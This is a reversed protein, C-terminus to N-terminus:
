SADGEKQKPPPQSDRDSRDRYWLVEDYTEQKVRRLDVSSKELFDPGTLKARADRELEAHRVGKFFDHELAEAASCRRKPNFQLMRKLLDLALPHAAPYIQEFPKPKKTGLSKIYENAKGISALDEASPTGLVGFIASLQDVKEDNNMEGDGSLPFCTGGPFLPNRKEYTAVNGQQMSLLEGLICGLSWIDVASTYPQILILEPARYWRTVVHKTLQRTLGLQPPKDFPKKKQDNQSQETQSLQEIDVIRALGFDCIKLSCDENLLINAPKLDRHIVSASHIYKLGALMQYLFTQIHQTTLYQPSMILKYLDTDVYEFVLYLDHFDDLDDTPPQIVNLLQIICDHGRMHRLIHMERYLRIADVEQDFPSQIRKIAVFADPRGASLDKAQAVEGYSGRGLIRVMEYRDGVAWDEFEGPLVPINRAGRKEGASESDRHPAPTVAGEMLMQEEELLQANKVTAIPLPTLPGNSACDWHSISSAPTSPPAPPVDQILARPVPSFAAPDDDDNYEEDADHKNYSAVNQPVASSASSIDSSVSASSENRTVHPFPAQKVSSYNYHSSAAAARAGRASAQEAAMEPTKMARAALKSANRSNSSGGESKRRKKPREEPGDLSPPTENSSEYTEYIQTQQKVSNSEDYSPDNRQSSQWRMKENSSVAAKKKQSASIKTAAKKPPDDENESFDHLPNNPLPLSAAAPDLRNPEAM